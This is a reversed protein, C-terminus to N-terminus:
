ASRGEMPRTDHTTSSELVVAAAALDPTHTLSVFLRDAGIARAHDALRGALVLAPEGHAGRVVEAERWTAGDRSTAGLAKFAAEKAAFRAAYGRAPSAQAGCDAIEAPTFIERAFGDPDRRLEREMRPVALVDVGIGVIM